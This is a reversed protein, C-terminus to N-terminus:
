LMTDLTDLTEKSCIPLKSRLSDSRLEMLMLWNRTLNMVLISPRTSALSRPRVLKVWTIARSTSRSNRISVSLLVLLRTRKSKPISLEWSYIKLFKPISMEPRDERSNNMLSRFTAFTRMFVRIHIRIKSMELCSLVELTTFISIQLSILLSKKM